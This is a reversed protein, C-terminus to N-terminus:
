RMSIIDHLLYGELKDKKLYEQEEEITRYCRTDRGSHGCFRYTDIILYSPLDKHIDGDCKHLGFAEFRKEISGAVGESISTSMAYKNNELVFCVPLSWLSVINLSEYLIGQGLTGDGIFCLVMNGSAKRKEALAMGCAIATFGGQIGTAYFNDKHLHQSYARGQNVGSPLGRLEDYLGQFDHTYALFHGHGRHTSTVIDGPHLQGIIAVEDYEQGICCHITGPIKGERFERLLNVEFERIRRALSKTDMRVLQIMLVGLCLSLAM